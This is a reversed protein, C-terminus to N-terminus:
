NLMQMIAYWCIMAFNVFTAITIIRSIRRNDKTLVVAREVADENRQAVEKLEDLNSIHVEVETQNDINVSAM